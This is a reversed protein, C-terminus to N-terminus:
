LNDVTGVSIYDYSFTATVLMQQASQGDLPIDPVDQPFMNYMKITNVAVGTPDFVVLTGTVSYSSKYGSSSGSDTGVVYQGWSRLTTYCEGTVREAFTCTLAQPYREPGRYKFAFGHLIQQWAENSFGPVSTTQCMLRMNVFSEGSPISGMNLSFNETTAPDDLSALDTRSIRTVM